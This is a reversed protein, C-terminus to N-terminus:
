HLSPPLRADDFPLSSPPIRSLLYTRSSAGRHVRFSSSLYALDIHTPKPAPLPILGDDNQLLDDLQRQDDHSRQRITTSTLLPVLKLAQFEVNIRHGKPNALPGSLVLGFDDFVQVLNYTDNTIVNFSDLITVPLPPLIGFSLLKLSPQFQKELAQDVKSKGLDTWKVHWAGRLSAVLDPPMVADEVFAQVIRLSEEVDRTGDLTRLLRAEPESLLARMKRPPVGIRNSVFAAAFSVVSLAATPAKGNM